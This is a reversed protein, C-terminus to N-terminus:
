GDIEDDDDKDFFIRIVSDIIKKAYWKRTVIVLVLLLLYFAAVIGFGAYLSGTLTEFYYGAMISLFLLLFLGLLSVLLGSFLMAILKATKETAQLKLLLMRDQVYQELEKRSETFFDDKQEEM